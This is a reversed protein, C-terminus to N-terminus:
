PGTPATDGSILNRVSEFLTPDDLVYFLAGRGNQISSCNSGSIAGQQNMDGFIAYHHPGSTSVGIKAHNFNPGSGGTLSFEKGNWHGTTAIGVSGTQGLAGNWCTVDSSSTTTFIQPKAWWTTARL